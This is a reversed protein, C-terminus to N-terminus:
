PVSQKTYPPHYPAPDNEWLPYGLTLMMCQFPEKGNRGLVARTMLDFMPGHLLQSRAGWEDGSNLATEAAAAGDDDRLTTIWPTPGVLQKKPTDRSDEPRQAKMYANM